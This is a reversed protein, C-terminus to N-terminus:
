HHEDWWFVRNLDLMTLQIKDYCPPPHQPDPVLQIVANKIEDDNIEDFKNLDIIGFHILLQLTWAFSAMAWETTSDNSGQKRRM